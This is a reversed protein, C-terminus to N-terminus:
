ELPPLVKYALFLFDDAGMHMRHWDKNSTLQCQVDFQQGVQKNTISIVAKPGPPIPTTLQKASRWALQYTSPDFSPDIEVEVTLTDGPRLFLEPRTMFSMFIGGDHVNSFQSRTFVQGFSDTVRLILPVNYEKQMGLGRYYKKLSEITDNVYCIVQEAQRASISNAHALHNRPELLRRL